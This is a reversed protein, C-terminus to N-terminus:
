HKYAGEKVLRDGEYISYIADIPFSDKLSAHVSCYRTISLDIARLLSAEDVGHGRVIYELVARKFRRPQEDTRDAHVKVELGTVNMKKKTLISIVDMATCGALAMIVLEMPSAGTEPGSHGDMKVPFGSEAMGVFQMEKQWTVKAEM